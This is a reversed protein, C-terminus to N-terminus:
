SDKASAVRASALLLVFVVPTWILAEGRSPSIANLVLSIAFLGVVAWALPRAIRQLSGLALGARAAMIAAIGLYIVIQVLAAVRMAPPYAGEFAGGMAYRGLPAGLALAFQFASVCALFFIILWAAQRASPM